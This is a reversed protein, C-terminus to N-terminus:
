NCRGNRRFICPLQLGFSLIIGISICTSVIELNLLCFGISLIWFFESIYITAKKYFKREIADLRRNESDIPSFLALGITAILTIIAFYFNYNIKSSAYICMCLLVSSLLICTWSRRAHYGGSFKRILMFPVILIISNKLEGLLCGFLITMLLPAITLLFSYAAYHYLEKEEDAIVKSKILWRVILSACGSIM